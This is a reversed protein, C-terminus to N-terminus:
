DLGLDDVVHTEPTLTAAAVGSQHAVVRKVRDWVDAEDPVEGRAVLTQVVCDRIQGLTGLTAAVNDPIAIAFEEEIEMALEVLDMGM